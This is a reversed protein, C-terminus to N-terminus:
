IAQPIASAFDGSYERRIAPFAAPLEPVALTYLPQDRLLARQPVRAALGSSLECRNDGSRGSVKVGGRSRTVQYATRAGHAIAASDPNVTSEMIVHLSGDPRVLLVFDSSEASSDTRAVNFIRQANELFTDV